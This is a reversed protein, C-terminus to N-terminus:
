DGAYTLTDLADEVTEGEDPEIRALQTLPENPSRIQTVQLGATTMRGNQYGSETEVYLQGSHEGEYIELTPTGSELETAIASVLTHQSQSLSDATTSTQAEVM